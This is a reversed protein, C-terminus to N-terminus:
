SIHLAIPPGHTSDLDLLKDLRRTGQSTYHLCHQLSATHVAEALCAQMLASLDVLSQNILFFFFLFGGVTQASLTEGEDGLEMPQEGVGCGGCWGVGWVGFELSVLLKLAAFVAKAFM